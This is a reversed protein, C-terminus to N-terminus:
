VQFKCFTRETHRMFLFEVPRLNVKSFQISYFVGKKIIEGWQPGFEGCRWFAIVSPLPFIFFFNLFFFIFSRFSLGLTLIRPNSDSEQM